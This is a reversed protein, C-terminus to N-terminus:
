QRAISRSSDVPFMGGAKLCIKILSKTVPDYKGIFITIRVIYPLLVITKGVKVWKLFRKFNISYDKFKSLM